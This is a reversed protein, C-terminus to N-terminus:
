GMQKFTKSVKNLFMDAHKEKKSINEKFNNLTLYDVMFDLGIFAQISSNM